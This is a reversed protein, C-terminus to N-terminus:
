LAIDFAGASSFVFKNKNYIFELGWGHEIDAGIGDKFEGCIYYKGARIDDYSCFTIQINDFLKNVKIIPESIKDDGDHTANYFDEYVDYIKNINSKVLSEISNVLKTFVPINEDPMHEIDIQISIMKNGIKVPIKGEKNNVFDYDNKKSENIIIGNENFISM